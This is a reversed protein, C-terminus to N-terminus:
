LIMVFRYASANDVMYQASRRTEDPKMMRSAHLRTSSRTTPSADDVFAIDLFFLSLNLVRFVFKGAICIVFTVCGHGMNVHVQRVRGHKINECVIFLIFDFSLHGDPACTLSLKLWCDGYVFDSSAVGMLIFTM